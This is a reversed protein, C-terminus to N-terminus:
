RFDFVKAQLVALTTESWNRAARAPFLGLCASVACWLHPFPLKEGGLTRWVVAHHRVCEKGADRWCCCYMGHPPMRAFEGDSM